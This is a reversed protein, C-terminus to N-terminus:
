DFPLPENDSVKMWESDKATGSTLMQLTLGQSALKDAIESTVEDGLVNKHQKLKSDVQHVVKEKDKESLDKVKNTMSKIVKVLVPSGYQKKLDEWNVEDLVGKLEQWTYNTGFTRNFNAADQKYLSIVGKRTATQSANFREVDRLARELQQTNKPITFRNGKGRATTNKQIDRMAVRYAYSTVNEFGQKQALKELSRLRDNALRAEKKYRAKLEARYESDNKGM